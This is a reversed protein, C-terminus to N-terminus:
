RFIIWNLSTCSITEATASSCLTQKKYKFRTAGNRHNNGGSRIFTHTCIRDQDRYHCEEETCYFSQSTATARASNMFSGHTWRAM